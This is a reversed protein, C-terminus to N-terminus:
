FHLSVDIFRGFFCHILSDIMAGAAWSTKTERVVTWFQIIPTEDHPKKKWVSIGLKELRHEISEDVFYIKGM